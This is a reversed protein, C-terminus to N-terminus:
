FVFIYEAALTIESTTVDRPFRLNRSVFKSAWIQPTVFTKHYDIGEKQTFGKAVLM